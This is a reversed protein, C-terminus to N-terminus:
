ILKITKLKVIYDELGYTGDEYELFEFEHTIITETECELHSDYFRIIIDYMGGTCDEHINDPIQDIISKFNDLLDKKFNTM